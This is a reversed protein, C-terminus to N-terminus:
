HSKLSKDMHSSDYFGCMQAIEAKSFRNEAILRRAKATRLRIIYAAPSLHLVQQFHRNLSSRSMNGLAALSDLSFKLDLHNQIYEMVRLLELSIGHSSSAVNLRRNMSVSLRGLLSLVQINEYVFIKDAEFKELAELEQRITQLEAYELRLFFGKGTSRRLSPAIDFLMHFGPVNELEIHYRMFFDSKILLHYVDLNELSIYGHLIGSPIVFVDGASVPMHRNEIYHVGSGGVVLNVEVFEHAHMGIQYNQHLFIRIYHQPHDGFCDENFWFSKTTDMPLFDPFM